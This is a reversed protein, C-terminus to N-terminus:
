CFVDVSILIEIKIVIMLVRLFNISFIFQSVKKENKEWYSHNIQKFM